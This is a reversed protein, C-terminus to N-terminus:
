SRCSLRLDHHKCSYASRIVGSEIHLAGERSVAKIAEQLAILVHNLLHLKSISVIFQNRHEARFQNENLM